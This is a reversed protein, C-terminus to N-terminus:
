VQIANTGPFNADLKGPHKIYTSFFPFFIYPLFTM